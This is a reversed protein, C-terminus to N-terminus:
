HDNTKEKDNKNKIFKMKIIMTSKTQTSSASVAEM